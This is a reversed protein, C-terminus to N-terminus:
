KVSLVHDGSQDLKNGSKFRAPYSKGHEPTTTGPLFHNDALMLLVM